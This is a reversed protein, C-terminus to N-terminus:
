GDFTVYTGPGIPLDFLYWIILQVTLVILYSFAYPLCLSIVTGIGVKTDADKKYQEMLGIIVPIYASMPTIINTSTDGVRFILQTLAPPFGVRALMPVFIPALIMWKAVGSTMFMNTFTVLAIFALMLPIGSLNISELLDGGIVSIITDLKSLSFLSIFMSATLSVVLFSLMGTLGKAMFNPVDKGAKIVEAGIGYAIGTVFFMIFLLPVVSSVLPSNPVIDGNDARFFSGKPVTLLLLFALYVILAVLAFKLGRNEADTIVHKELESADLSADGDDLIKMTFKETVWATVITLTFTSAIMFYWNILPHIPGPIHMSEAASQTMGALMVDTGAILLNATFGSDAAAFGVIIGIWPNKGLAKYIAAGIVPTFIIGAASALNANIGVFALAGAVLYTPAGLVTKRMLASVMGTQEILGIGLLMTLVLGLPTFNIYTKVFDALFARMVKYELLNVVAVTSEKPMEGARAVWYTVSVGAYSLLVSLAIVIAGLISFLWFPHPLKNGVTEVAYIFRQLWGNEEIKPRSCSL